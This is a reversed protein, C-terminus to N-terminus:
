KKAPPDLTVLKATNPKDSSCENCGACSPPKDVAGLRWLCRGFYAGAALVLGIATIDQWGLNM